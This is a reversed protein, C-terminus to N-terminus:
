LGFGQTFLVPRIELALGPIRSDPILAALERVREPTECELLYFGGVYEKAEVYPGDTVVPAGDSVRVVSSEAPQGLAHTSIMEGSETIQKMFEAHGETIQNLQEESLAAMAAPNVHILLLYKM